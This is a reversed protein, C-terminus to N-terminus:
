EFNAFMKPPCLANVEALIQNDTFHELQIAGQPCTVTCIGCGQCVTDIVEAKPNGFRDQIEKIAGFPCTQICKGCGVCRAPNVRSVAPDSELMAKSLLGLVKSAAASGQGVSAPIDKPGQCAGALFVGATNTEVPKLKPHSEVFFGYQDPAVRLKEGLQVAGKASEAGVALVVLDAPVEVQTGALTDAGRVVLKDGKPYIMAVRGRVYQAGYEEMARRVFEDYLKGPSRIDM